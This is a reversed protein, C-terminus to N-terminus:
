LFPSIPQGAPAVFYDNPAGAVNTEVKVNIAVVLDVSEALNVAQAVNIYQAATIAEAVNFLVYCYTIATCAESTRLSADTSWAPAPSASGCGKKQLVEGPMEVFERRESAHRSLDTVCRGIASMDVGLAARGSLALREPSRERPRVMPLMKM